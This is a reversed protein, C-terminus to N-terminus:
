KKKITISRLYKLRKRMGQYKTDKEYNKLKHTGSM